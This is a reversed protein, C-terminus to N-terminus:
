SKFLAKKMRWFFFKLQKFFSPKKAKERKQDFGAKM